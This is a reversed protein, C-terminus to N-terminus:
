KLLANLELKNNGQDFSLTYVHLFHSTAAVRNTIDNRLYLSTALDKEACLFRLSHRNQRVRVSLLAM